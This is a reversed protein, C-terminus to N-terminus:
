YVSDILTGDLDFLFVPEIRMTVGHRRNSTGARGPLRSLRHMSMRDPRGNLRGVLPRETLSRVPFVTRFIGIPQSTWCKIALHRSLGRTGLGCSGGCSYAALGLWSAVPDDPFATVPSFGRALLGATPEPTAPRPAETSRSGQAAGPVLGKGTSAATM